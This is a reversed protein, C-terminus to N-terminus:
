CFAHQWRLQLTACDTPQQTTFLAALTTLLVTLRPTRYGSPLTVLRHTFRARWNPLQRYLRHLWRWAQRAEHRGTAQQFAAVVSAGSLLTLLFLSLVTAGYHWRPLSHALYLRLTRGCGSRGFRNSCVLRKGVPQPLALSQKQYVFGHSVFSQESGCHVCSLSPNLSFAHLSQLCPFFHTM